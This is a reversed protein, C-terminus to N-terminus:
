AATTLMPVGAARGRGASGAAALPPGGNVPQM